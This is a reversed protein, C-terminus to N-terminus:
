FEYNLKMQNLKMTAHPSSSFDRLSNGCHQGELDIGPIQNEASSKNSQGEYDAQQYFKKVFAHRTYM